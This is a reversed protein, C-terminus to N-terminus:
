LLFVDKMGYRLVPVAKESGPDILSVLCNEFVQLTNFTVDVDM